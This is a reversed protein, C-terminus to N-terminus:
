RELDYDHEPEPEPSPPPMQGRELEIKGCLADLGSPPVSGRMEDMEPPALETPTLAIRLGIGLPTEPLEKVGEALDAVQGFWAREVVEQRIDTIAERAVRAVESFFAKSGGAM